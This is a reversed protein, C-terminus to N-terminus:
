LISIGFLLLLGFEFLLLLVSFFTDLVKHNISERNSNNMKRQIKHNRSSEICSIIVIFRKFTDIDIKNNIGKHTSKMKFILFVFAFLSFIQDSM